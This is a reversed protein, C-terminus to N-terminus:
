NRRADKVRDILDTADKLSERIFILHYIFVFVRGISSLIISHGRYSASSEITEKRSM